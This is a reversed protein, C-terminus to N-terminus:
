IWYGKITATYTVVGSTAAAQLNRVVLAVQEGPNAVAPAQTLDLELPLASGLTGVAATAAYTDIGIPIKRAIKTTGTAFSASEATALSVASSGFALFWANSIPGGVFVTTVVGHLQVGTIVLKRGLLATTGAPVTFSCAIGDVNIAATVTVAFIGGLGTVIAATNSPVGATAGTGSAPYIATNGPTGGEQAQYSCQGMASLVHSLPMGPNLDNQEAHVLMVKLQAQTGTVASANRQQMTYPLAVSSFPVGNASPTPISGVLVRNIWFSTLETTINIGLDYATGAVLTAGSPFVSTPFSVVTETGAYNIVGLTGASTIRFYAGDAPATTATPLFLGLEIIQGSEPLVNSIIIRAVTYLEGGGELKLYRWSSLACGTTTTSTSNANFLLSGSGETITMTTFLCKWQGTAQATGNFNYDLLPTSLGAALRNQTSVYPNAVLRTGTINGHDIEMECSVFGANAAVLPTNVHANNNTDVDQGVGSVAGVVEAALPPM